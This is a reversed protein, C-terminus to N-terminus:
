RRRASQAGDADDPHLYLTFGIGRRTALLRERITRAVQARDALDDPLAACLNERLKRIIEDLNALQSPTYSESWVIAACQERTCVEGAHRFLHLLLRFQQAPLEVRRDLLYFWMTTEDFALWERALSSQTPDHDEFRVLPAKSGFGIADGNSLRYPARLRAGNVFTGNTSDADSLVYRPGHREIKAHLRSVTREATDIFVQCHPDRGLTCVEGLEYCAPRVTADLAILTAAATPPRPAM